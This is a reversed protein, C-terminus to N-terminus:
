KPGAIKRNMKRNADKVKQRGMNKKKNEAWVFAFSIVVYHGFIFPAWIFYYAGLLLDFPGFFGGIRFWNKRM